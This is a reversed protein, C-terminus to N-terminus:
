LVLFPSRERLGQQTIAGIEVNLLSNAPRNAALDVKIFNDSLAGKELTVVSLTRGLM